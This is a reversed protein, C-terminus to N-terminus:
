GRLRAYQLIQQKLIEMRAGTLGRAPVLDLSSFFLLAAVPTVLVLIVILRKM